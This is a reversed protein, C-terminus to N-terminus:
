ASIPRGFVAGQLVDITGTFCFTRKARGFCEPWQRRLYCASLIVRILLPLLLTHIYITTSHNISHHTDLYHMFIGSFLVEQFTSENHKAM